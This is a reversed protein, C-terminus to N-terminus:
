GSCSLEGTLFIRPKRVSRLAEDVWARAAGAVHDQAAPTSFDAEDPNEPRALSIYFLGKSFEARNPTCAASSSRSPSTQRTPREVVLRGAYGDAFVRTVFPYRQCPRNNPGVPQRPDGSVAVSGPRVARPRCARPCPPCEAGSYPAPFADLRDHSFHRVRCSEFTHGEGESPPARRASCKPLGM